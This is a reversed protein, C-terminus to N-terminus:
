SKCVSYLKFLPCIILRNWIMTFYSFLNEFSVFHLLRCQSWTSPLQNHSNSDLDLIKSESKLIISCKSFYIRIWTTFWLKLTILEAGQWLQWWRHLMCTCGASFTNIKTLVIHALLVCFICVRLVREKAQINLNMDSFICLFFGQIHLAYKYSLYAFIHVGVPAWKESPAETSQRQLHVHTPSPHSRRRAPWVM